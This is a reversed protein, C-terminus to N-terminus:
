ACVALVPAAPPQDDLLRGFRQCRQQESEFRARADHTDVYKRYQQSRSVLQAYLADAQPGGLPRDQSQALQDFYARVGIDSAATEILASAAQGDGGLARQLRLFLADQSPQCYLEQGTVRGDVMDIIYTETAAGGNAAIITTGTGADLSFQRVFVETGISTVRGAQRWRSAAAVPLGPQRGYFAYADLRASERYYLDLGTRISVCEAPDPTGAATDRHAQLLEADDPLGATVIASALQDYVMAPLMGPTVAARVDICAEVHITRPGDLLYEAQGALRYIEDSPGDEHREAAVSRM